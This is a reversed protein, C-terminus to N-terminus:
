SIRRWLTGSFGGVSKLKVFSSVRGLSDIKLRGVTITGYNSTAGRPIDAWYGSLQATGSSDVTMRGLFVNSFNVGMTTTSPQGSFGAWWVCDGIQRIWYTGGDNAAFTGTLNITRGSAQPMNKQSCAVHASGHSNVSGTAATGAVLLIAGLVIVAPRSFRGM